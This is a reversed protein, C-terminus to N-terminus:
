FDVSKRGEKKLSIKRKMEKRNEKTRKSLGERMRRVKPRVWSARLIEELKRMADTRNQVQTRYEQSTVALYGEGSIRNSENALLRRMVEEPMWSSSSRVHLRIEVKTSVKNVNQGGAGSARVFSVELQDEPIPIRDPVVWPSATPTTTSPSSSSSSSSSSLSSFSASFGRPSLRRVDEPGNNDNSMQDRM